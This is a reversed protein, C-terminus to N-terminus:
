GGRIRQEIGGQPFDEWIPRLIKNWKKSRNTSAQHFYFFQFKIILIYEKSDVSLTHYLFSLIHCLFSIFTGIQSFPPYGNAIFLDWFPLNM